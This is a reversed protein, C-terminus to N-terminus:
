LKDNCCACRSNSVLIREATESTNELRTAESKSQEAIVLNAAKPSALNRNSFEWICSWSSWFRFEAAPRPWVLARKQSIWTQLCSRASLNKESFNLDPLCCRTSLNKFGLQLHWVVQTFRSCNLYLLFLHNQWISMKHLISVKSSNLSVEPSEPVALNEDHQMLKKICTQMQAINVEIKRPLRRHSMQEPIQAEKMHLTYLAPREHKPSDRYPESPDLLPSAALWPRPTKIPTAVSGKRADYDKAHDHHSFDMREKQVELTKTPTNLESVDLKGAFSEWCSYFLVDFHLGSLSISQLSRNITEM